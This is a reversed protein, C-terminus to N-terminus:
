DRTSPTNTDDESWLGPLDTVDRGESDIRRRSEAKISEPWIVRVKRKYDVDFVTLAAENAKNFRDIAEQTEKELRFVSSGMDEYGDECAREIAHGFDVKRIVTTSCFVFEPLETSEDLGIDSVYEILNDISEFWGDNYGQFHESYVWSEWASVEEAADLRALMRKKYAIETCESCKTLGRIVDKGCEDCKWNCCRTVLMKSNNVSRCKECAFVGSPEGNPLFLEIPNM